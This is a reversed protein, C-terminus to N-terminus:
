TREGEDDVRRCCGCCTPPRKIIKKMRISWIAKNAPYISLTIYASYAIKPENIVALHRTKSESLLKRCVPWIARTTALLATDAQDARNAAHLGHRM